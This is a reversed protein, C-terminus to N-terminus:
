QFVLFKHRTDVRYLGDPVFAFDCKLHLGSCINEGDTVVEGETKTHSGDSKKMKEKEM